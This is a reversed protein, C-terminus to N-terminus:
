NMFRILNDFTQQQQEELSIEASSDMLLKGLYGFQSHNGGKILVLKTN